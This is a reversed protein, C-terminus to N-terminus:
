LILEEMDINWNNNHLRQVRDCICAIALDAIETTAAAFTYKWRIYHLKSPPKIYIIGQPHVSNDNVCFIEFEIGQKILNTKWEQIVGAQIYRTFDKISLKSSM